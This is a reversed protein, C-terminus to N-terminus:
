LFTQYRIVEKVHTIAHLDLVAPDAIFNGLNRLDNIDAVSCIPNDNLLKAFNPNDNLAGRVRNYDVYYRWESNHKYVQADVVRALVPLVLIASLILGTNLLQRKSRIRGSLPFLMVPAYVGFCLM